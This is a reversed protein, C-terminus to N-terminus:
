ELQAGNSGEMVVPVTWHPLDMYYNMALFCDQFCFLSSARHYKHCLLSTFWGAKARSTPSPQLAMGCVVPNRNLERDPLAHSAVSRHKEKGEEGERKWGRERLILPGEPSYKFFLNFNFILKKLGTETGLLPPM